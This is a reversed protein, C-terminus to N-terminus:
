EIDFWDGQCTVGSTDACRYRFVSRHEWPIHAYEKDQVCSDMGSVCNCVKKNSPTIKGEACKKASCDSQESLLPIERAPPTVDMPIGGRLIKIPVLEGIGADAMGRVVDRLNAGCSIPVLRYELIIDNPELYGPPTDDCLFAVTAPGISDEGDFAFGIGIITEYICDQGAPDTCRLWKQAFYGFDVFDIDCDYDIDGSLYGWRGCSNPEPAVVMTQEIPSVREGNRTLYVRGPEVLPTKANVKWGTYLGPGTLENSPNTQYSYRGIYLPGQSWGPPPIVKVYGPTVYPGEIDVENVGPVCPDWLTINVDWSHQYPFEGGIEEWGLYDFSFEFGMCRAPVFFFVGLVALMVVLTLKLPKM